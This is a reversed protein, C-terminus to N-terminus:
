SGAAAGERTQITNGSLRVRNVQVVVAFGKREPDKELEQPIVRKMVEERMPGERHLTADGYFRLLFGRKPSRYLVAVHPNAAVQEIQEALSREWWALHDNDFIMMSGKFAIDPYGNKDCSVLVCPNGEEFAVNVAEAFKSLDIVRTV